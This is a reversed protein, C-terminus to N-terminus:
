NQETDFISMTVKPKTYNRFERLERLSEQKNRTAAAIPHISVLSSGAKM